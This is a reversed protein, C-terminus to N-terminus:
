RSLRASIQGIFEDLTLARQSATLRPPSTYNAVSLLPELSSNAIFRGVGGHGTVVRFRGHSMGVLPSILTRQSSLFLVDSDGVLFRPMGAVRQSVDGVFGGLLSLTIVGDGRGKIQRDVRLRVETVIVRRDQLLRWSTRTDLVETLVISQAQAVLEDFTPAIQQVAPTPMVSVAVLVVVLFRTAYRM